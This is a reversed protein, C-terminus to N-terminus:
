RRGGTAPVMLVLGIPVCVLGFIVVGPLGNRGVILAGVASGAALASPFVVSLGTLLKGGRDVAAVVAACYPLFLYWGLNFLCIAVAYRASGGNQALLGIGAGSLLFSVVLPLLRGRRNGLVAAISAAVIGAVLGAFLVQPILGGSLKWLVGIREAYAWVAAMASYYIFAGGLCIVGRTTTSLPASNSGVAPGAGRCPSTPYLKLTALLVVCWGAMVAFVGWLGTAGLLEPFALTGMAGLTLQGVTWLGYVWDPETLNGIILVTLTMLLGAGIGAAFRCAALQPLTQAFVAALNAAVMMLLAVIVIRRCSASLVAFMFLAGVTFGAMELSFLTAAQQESLGLETVYAGVLLPGVYLSLVAVSSGLVVSGLVRALSMQGQTSKGLDRSASETASM